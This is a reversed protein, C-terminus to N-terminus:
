DRGNDYIAVALNEADTLAQLLDFHRDTDAKRAMLADSAGLHQYNRGHFIEHLAAAGIASRADMVANLLAVAARQFDDATSGNIGPRASVPRTSTNFM